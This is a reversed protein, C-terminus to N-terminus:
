AVERVPAKDTLIRPVQWNLHHHPVCYSSGEKAPHGCFTFPGDGYPQRCEGRELDLLTKNLPELEVCRVKYQARETVSLVRMQNSNGNSRVIRTIMTEHNASSKKAGAKKARAKKPRLPKKVEPAPLKMRHIRGIIANRTGGLKESIIRCSFGEAYLGVLATVRDETWFGIAAM